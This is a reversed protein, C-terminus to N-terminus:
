CIARNPSSKVPLYAIQRCAKNTSSFLLATRDLIPQFCPGSVEALAQFRALSTAYNHDLSSGSSHLMHGRIAFIAFSSESAYRYNPLDHLQRWM